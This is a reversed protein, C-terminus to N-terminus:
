IQRKDESRQQYIRTDTPTEFRTKKQEYLKKKKLMKTGRERCKRGTHRKKELMQTDNKEETM